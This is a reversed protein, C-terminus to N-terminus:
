FTISLVIIFLVTSMLFFLKFIGNSVNKIANTVVPNSITINTENEFTTVVNNVLTSNNIAGRLNSEFNETSNNSITFYVSFDLLKREELRRSQFFVWVLDGDDTYISTNLGLNFYELILNGLFQKQQKTLSSSASFSLKFSKSINQSSNM